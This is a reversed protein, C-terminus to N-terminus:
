QKNTKSLVDQIDKWCDTVCAVFDSGNLSDPYSTINCGVSDDFASYGIGLGNPVVPAFGGALVAPASLTSTSLIIHNIFSYAPDAFITPTKGEKAALTRLAFLHRDWGQGMAAEKTLQNHIDSCEQLLRRKEELSASSDKQFAQSCRTTEQTASRLTETRGHKFAATSCSEYTAGVQGTMRLYAMQFSLQMVSDPSIKCTKLFNKGFDMHQYSDICLRSTAAEYNDRATKIANSVGPELDLILRNVGQSPDTNSPKSSPSVAPRENMDKFTENFLRLVAVGDGWAHEFNVSMLGNKCVIIQFSKDFWRYAADGYLMNRTMDEPGDPSTEDLCLCFVASDIMKMVQANNESTDVIKTRVNAWVDRNEATLYGVPTDPRPTNDNLIYQLNAQIDAPSVISGDQDIVDFTYYHGNRVVLLHRGSDDTVLEDRGIQPVRTSNFLRFYQSMDLPFAKNLIAYYAAISQPMWRAIKRFSETDSKKPNLHYVEPELKGERITKMLRMASVVLNSSRILQDNFEPREDFKYAMYPNFNLVISARSELYMDFWPGSIYSTHKNRKNQAILQSNLSNGEGKEFDQVIKKTAAYVEPTLVPEQSKLYRRCTDSLKPIPLRPLSHQFHMTPVISDQIYDSSTSSKRFSQFARWSSAAQLCRLNSRLHEATVLRQIGAM